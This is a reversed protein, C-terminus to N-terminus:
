KSILAAAAARKNKYSCRALQAQSPRVAPAATGVHVINASICASASKWTSRSPWPM